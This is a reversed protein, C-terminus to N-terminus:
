FFRVSVGGAALAGAAPTGQLIFDPAVYFTDRVLPFTAGAELELSLPGVLRWQLRGLLGPAIWPRVRTTTAAHRKGGQARLVGGDVIVCPSVALEASLTFTLPCGEIRGAIWTFQAFAPGRHVEGSPVVLASVRLSPAVISGPVDWRLEAGLQGGPTLDPAIAGEGTADLAVAVHPGPAWVPRASASPTPLAPLPLATLEVASPPLLVYPPLPPGPQATRASAPASPLASARVLSETPATSARPDVALATILSLASIVEACQEGTVERTSPREPPAEIALSGRARRGEQTVVIKFTRAREGEAALRAKPTRATVQDIFATVDPCGAPASFAIRIPEAEEGQGRVVEASLGAAFAVLGTAWSPRSGRPSRM